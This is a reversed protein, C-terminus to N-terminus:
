NGSGKPEDREPTNASAPLDWVNVEALTGPPLADACRAVVGRAAPATLYIVRAYGAPATLEAMIQATRAAHKATLEIEVAWIQGAYPSAPISPWWIEADPRHTGAAPGKRRIRRESQWWAQGHAWAPSAAFWLRAALVARLHALRALPPRAAPYGLGAAAMGAPTLWCWAPGPGLPGTAAYGARRWRATIARLRAPQVALAAALLDYPAAAHEACLVLGDIDRQGLRVTGVDARRPVSAARREVTLGTM